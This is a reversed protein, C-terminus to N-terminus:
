NERKKLLTDRPICLALARVAFFSPCLSLFLRDLITKKRLAAPVYPCRPDSGHIDGTYFLATTRCGGCLQKYECVGCKGKLNNKDRANAFFESNEM